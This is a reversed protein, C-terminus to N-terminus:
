TEPRTLYDAAKRGYKTVIRELSVFPNWGCTECKQHNCGVCFNYRCPDDRDHPGIWESSIKYEEQNM